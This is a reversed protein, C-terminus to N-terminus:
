AKQMVDDAWSIAASVAPFGITSTLLILTHYIEEKKAGAELARRVHSHVSGESRIAAAAALQILHSSKANLPGMKRATKGLNEVADSLKKYRKRIDTYMKPLKKAAM